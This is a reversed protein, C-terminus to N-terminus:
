VTKINDQKFLFDTDGFWKGVIDFATVLQSDKFYDFELAANTRYAVTDGVTLGTHTLLGLQLPLKIIIGLRFGSTVPIEREEFDAKTANTKKDVGTAKPVFKKVKYNYVPLPKVLVKDFPIFPIKEEISEAIEQNSSIPEVVDESTVDIIQEENM